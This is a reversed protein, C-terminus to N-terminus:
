WWYVAGGPGGYYYPWGPGGYYSPSAPYIVRNQYYSQDKTKLLYDIVTASVGKEKLNLVDATQLNLVTGSASIKNIIEQDSTGSQALKIIDDQTLPPTSPQVYYYPAVCSVPLLAIVAWLFLSYSKIKM